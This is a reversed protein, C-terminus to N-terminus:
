PFISIKLIHALKKSKKSLKTYYSVIVPLLILKNIRCFFRLSFFDFQIIIKFFEIIKFCDFSNRFWIFNVENKM